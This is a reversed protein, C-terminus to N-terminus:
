VRINLNGYEGFYKKTASDRAKIADNIDKYYGLYIKKKNVTIQAMYNGQHHYVGKLGTSSYTMKNMNNQSNNCNRLNYKQNNLGNRDIHDVQLNNPTKMIVRHMYYKIKRPSSIRRAAYYTYKGKDVFWNFCSLYEFDEDDVQAIFGQTLKIEKM